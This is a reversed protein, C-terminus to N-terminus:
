YNLTLTLTNYDIIAHYRLLIDSGILGAVPPLHLGHLMTNIHSIDLMLFPYHRIYIDGIRMGPLRYLLAPQQMDESASLVKDDINVAHQKYSEGTIHPSLCSHSAGTDIVMRQMHRGIKVPLILQVNQKNNLYQLTLPITTTTPM